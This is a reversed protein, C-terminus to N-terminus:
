YVDGNEKRKEDEYPAAVRRYFEQKSCELVGIISNLANYSREHGIFEQCLKTICYNLEGLTEPCGYLEMRKRRDQKIYPM